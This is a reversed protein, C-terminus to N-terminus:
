TTQSAPVVVMNRRNMAGMSHELIGAFNQPGTLTALEQCFMGDIGSLFFM